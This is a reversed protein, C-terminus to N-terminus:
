SSYDTMIEMTIITYPKCQLLVGLKGLRFGNNWECM